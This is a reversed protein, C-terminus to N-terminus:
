SYKRIQEDTYYQRANEVGYAKIFDRPESLQVTDKAFDRRMKDRSNKASTESGQILSNLCEDCGTYIRGKHISSKNKPCKHM